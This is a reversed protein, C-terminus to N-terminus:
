RSSPARSRARTPRGRGGDLTQAAVAAQEHIPAVIGHVIGRHQACEGVALSARTAVHGDPRRRRDRARRRPGTERALAVQPRIGISVVLLDATSSRATPSACAASRATAPRARRDPTELLVEVGLAEMAPALLAAAGADLQREMLRDMLHVVTTPCGLGAIGRAAELGLLGGGIVAAHRAAGPARPSRRATTPTASSSPRRRLDIGPIPPM